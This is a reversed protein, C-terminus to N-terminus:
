YGENWLDNGKQHYLCVVSGGCDHCGRRGYRIYESWLSWASELASTQESSSAGLLPLAVFWGLAGGLFVLIAIKLHVIYGVALLAMSIDCGFFWTRGGMFFAREVSSQLLDLGGTLLKFLGGVALGQLVYKGGKGKSSQLVSACAVSEPYVLEKSDVILIKRLPIMFIVGLTGGCIAILTTPWFAFDNWVGTLLLAPMTFIIGAALSGGSSVITQITNCELVSKKNFLAMFFAMGMVSAPISSSITMGAYLGLYTNAATMVVAIVVGSLIATLTFEKPRSM